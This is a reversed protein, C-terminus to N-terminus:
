SSSKINALEVFRDIKCNQDFRILVMAKLKREGGKSRCQSDNKCPCSAHIYDFHDPPFAEYNWVLLDVCITPNHKPCIDLTIVEHDKERAVKALSETGAFLELIRM